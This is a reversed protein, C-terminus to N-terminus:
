DSDQHLIHTEEDQQIEEHIPPTNEITTTNHLITESESATNIQQQRGKCSCANKVHQPDNLPFTIRLRGRGAFNLYQILLWRVQMEPPQGRKLIEHRKTSTGSHLLDGIESNKIAVEGRTLPAIIDLYYATLDFSNKEKDIEELYSPPHKPDEAPRM